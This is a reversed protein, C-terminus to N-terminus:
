TMTRNIIATLGTGSTTDWTTVQQCGCTRLPRHSTRAPCGSPITQIQFNIFTQKNLTTYIFIFSVFKIKEISITFVTTKVYEVVPCNGPVYKRLKTMHGSSLFLSFSTMSPILDFLNVYSICLWKKIEQFVMM